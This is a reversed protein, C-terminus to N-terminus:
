YCEALTGAYPLNYCVIVISFCYFSENNESFSKNKLILKITSSTFAYVFGRSLHMLSVDFLHSTNISFM